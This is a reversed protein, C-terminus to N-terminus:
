PLQNYAKMARQEIQHDTQYRNHHNHTQGKSEANYLTKYKKPANNEKDSTKTSSNKGSNNSYKLMRPSYNSNIRQESILPKSYDNDLKRSSRCRDM